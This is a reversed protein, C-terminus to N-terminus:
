NKFFEKFTKEEDKLINKTLKQFGDKQKESIGTVLKKPTGKEVYIYNPAGLRKEGEYETKDLSEIDGHKYDKLVNKFKKQFEHYAKTGKRELYIKENKDKAYEDRIDTEASDEGPRVDVYYIKKINQKKAIELMKEIVSRCWPCSEFGFYVYFTEKNDVKENIKDITTIEIPNNKPITVNRTTKGYIKKGNLSEYTKKFKLSDKSACATLLFVPILLIIIKNIKKM